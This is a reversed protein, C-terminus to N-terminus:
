RESSKDQGSRHATALPSELNPRCLIALAMLSSGALIVRTTNERLTLDSITVILVILLVFGLVISL